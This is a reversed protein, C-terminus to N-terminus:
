ISHCLIEILMEKKGWGNMQKVSYYVSYCKMLVFFQMNHNENVFKPLTEFLFYKGEQM